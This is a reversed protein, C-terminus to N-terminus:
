ANKFSLKGRQETTFMKGIEADKKLELFM